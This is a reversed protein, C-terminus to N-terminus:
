SFGLTSKEKKYV